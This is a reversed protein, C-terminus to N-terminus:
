QPPRIDKLDEWVAGEATKCMLFAPRRPEWTRPRPEWRCGGGVGVARVDMEDADDSSHRAQSPVYADGLLGHRVGDMYEESDADRDQRHGRLVRRPPIIGFDEM